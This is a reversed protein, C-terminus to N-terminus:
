TNLNDMTYTMKLYTTRQAIQYWKYLKIQLIPVFGRLADCILDLSPRTESSGLSFM